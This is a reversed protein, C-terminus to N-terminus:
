DGVITCPSHVDFQFHQVSNALFALSDFDCFRAGLGSSALVGALIGMALQTAVSNTAKTHM